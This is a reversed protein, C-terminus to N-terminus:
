RVLEEQVQLLSEIDIIPFNSQCGYIILIRSNHIIYGVNDFLGTTTFPGIVNIGAQQFVPNNKEAGLDVIRDSIHDCRM